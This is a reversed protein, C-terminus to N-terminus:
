RVTEADLAPDRDHVAAPRSPTFLWRALAVAVVTGVAQGALFGPVHGAQIGTWTATFARGITVAPNAFSASSTFVIAGTIYAGVVYPVHAERRARVSGFIVLVLGGTALGESVVRALGGRDAAAAAAWPEGFILNAVIAGAVAGVVQAAVFPAVERRDLDGDLAFALTVAPNFHAGSVHAFTVILAVLTAGVVAAHHFLGSAGDGGMTIGSGVVALMLVFTGVLEAVARRPTDATM